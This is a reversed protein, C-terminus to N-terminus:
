KACLGIYFIPRLFMGRRMRKESFIKLVAKNNKIKIRLEKNKM